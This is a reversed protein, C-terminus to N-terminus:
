IYIFVYITSGYIYVRIWDVTGDMHVVGICDDADGGESGDGTMVKVSAVIMAVTM